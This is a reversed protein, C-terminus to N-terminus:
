VQHTTPVGKAHTRAIRKTVVEALIKDKLSTPSIM